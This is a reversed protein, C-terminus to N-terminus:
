IPKQRAKLARLNRRVSVLNPHIALAAEFSEIAAFDDGQAHQILGRGSLAGFHRPELALTRDIDALSAEYDGVLYHATARKNWAEAFAPAKDVLVDYVALAATFAQSELADIGAQMLANAQPDDTEIWIQWIANEFGRANLPDRVELLEQFLGDLRDDNQDAAAQSTLLALASFLTALWRM